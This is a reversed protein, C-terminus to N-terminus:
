LALWALYLNICIKGKLVILQRKTLRSTMYFQITREGKDELNIIHFNKFSGKLKNLKHIKKLKMRKFTQLKKTKFTLLHAFM